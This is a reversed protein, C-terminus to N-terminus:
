RKALARVIAEGFEKAAEPGSATIINGDQEVKAGTYKAGKAKLKEAEAGFVTVKKGSLVGANALTVPAICIACLIKGKEVAERAIRHAVPDEWYEAAGVGGVFVIADYDEVKIDKVLVDPKVRAGLMGTALDLTSSAITVKAGQSELIEKPRQFEEDRFNRAAVIM